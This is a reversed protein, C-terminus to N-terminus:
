KSVINDLMKFAEDTNAQAIELLKKIKCIKEDKGIYKNIWYLANEISHNDNTLEVFANQIYINDSLGSNAVNKNNDM